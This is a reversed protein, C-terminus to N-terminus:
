ARDILVNKEEFRKIKTSLLGMTGGILIFLTIRYSINILGGSLFTVLLSSMLIVLTISLDHQYGLVKICIFTKKLLTLIIIVYILIGFLGAGHLIVAYDTHLIRYSPMNYLASSYTGISNLFETGFFSYYYDHFSFILYTVSLIERYRSESEVENAISERQFRDSRADLVSFLPGSYLPYASVFILCLYLSYKLLNKKKGMIAYIFFAIVIMIIATRRMSLLVIISSLSVLMTDRVRHDSYKIFIFSM